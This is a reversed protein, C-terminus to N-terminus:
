SSVESTAPQKIGREIVDGFQASLHKKSFQSRAAQGARGGMEALEERDTALIKRIIEVAADVDGRGEAYAGLSREAAETYTRELCWMPPTYLAKCGAMASATQTVEMM